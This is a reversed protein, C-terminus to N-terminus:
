PWVSILATYALAALTLSGYFGVGITACMVPRDHRCREIHRQILPM